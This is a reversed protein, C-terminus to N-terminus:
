KIWKRALPLFAEGAPTLAVQRQGKGRLLLTVGVADELETLIMAFLFKSMQYQM